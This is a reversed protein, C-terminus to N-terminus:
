LDAHKDQAIEELEKTDMNKVTTWIFKLNRKSKFKTIILHIEIIRIIINM